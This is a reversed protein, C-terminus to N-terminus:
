DLENLRRRLGLLDEALQAALGAAIDQGPLTIHQQAAAALATDAVKAVHLARNRRLHAILEDRGAARIQDPTQYGTLLILTAVNTVTLARELAPSIGLLLRRLRNVTRVWDEILGTRHSLLLELGAVLEAPPAVTLLDHRMRITNAIVVADRADTKAEGRFTGSMTKVTRGPVYVTAQGAVALVGRLLATESSLLDIGWVADHGEARNLVQGIADQDNAVRTSWAVQGADDLAAAHHHEKGADVGIWLRTM